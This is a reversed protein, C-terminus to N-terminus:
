ELVNLTHLQLEVLTGNIGVMIKGSSSLGIAVGTLNISTGPPPLDWNVATASIHLDYMPESITMNKVLTHNTATNNLNDITPDLITTANMNDITTNQTYNAGMYEVVDEYSSGDLIMTLIEHSFFNKESQKNVADEYSMGSKQMLKIEDQAAQSVTLTYNIQRIINQRIAPDTNSILKEYSYKSIQGLRKENEGIHQNTINIAIDRDLLIQKNKDDLKQQRATQELHKKHLDNYYKYLMSGVLDNRFDSENAHLYKKADETNLIIEEASLGSEGDIRYTAYAFGIKEGVLGDASARVVVSHLGPTAITENFSYAFTGNEDTELWATHGLTRVSVNAGVVANGGHDKIHGRLEPYGEEPVPDNDIIPYILLDWFTEDAQAVSVMTFCFVFAVLIYWTLM